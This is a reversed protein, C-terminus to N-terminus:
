QREEERQVWRAADAPTDIDDTVTPDATVGLLRLPELLRYMATLPPNGRDALRRELAPTRYCGLLWQLRGTGDVLCVGDDAPDMDAALLDGVGAEAGPLDCALLLTWAAHDPLAAVGAAVAEVPGGFPPDERALLVGDPAPGPGVLVVRRASTVASIAVDVLRRGGLVFEAKSPAGLRSGRGGALVIADYDDIV